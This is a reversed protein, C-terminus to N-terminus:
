LSNRDAHDRSSMPRSLHSRTQFQHANTKEASLLTVKIKYATFGVKLDSRRGCLKESISTTKM